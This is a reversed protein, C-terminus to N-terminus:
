GPSLLSECPALVMAFRWCCAITHLLQQLPRASGGISPTKTIKVFAANPQCGVMPVQGRGALCKRAGVCARKISLGQGSPREAADQPGDVTGVLEPQCDGQRGLRALVQRRGQQGSNDAGKNRWLHPMM